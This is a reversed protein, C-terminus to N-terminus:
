RHVYQTQLPVSNVPTESDVREGNVHVQIVETRAAAAQAPEPSQPARSDSM